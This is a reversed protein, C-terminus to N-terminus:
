RVEKFPEGTERGEAGPSSLGRVGPLRLQGPHLSPAPEILLCGGRAVVRLGGAHLSHANRSSLEDWLAAELTPIEEALRRRFHLSRVTRSLASLHM